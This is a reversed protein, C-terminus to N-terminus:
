KRWDMLFSNVSQLTSRSPNAEPFTTMIAGLKAKVLAKTFHEDGTPMRLRDQEDFFYCLLALSTGISLDRGSNCGIVIQNPSTEEVSSSLFVAVFKCIEELALRLNRAATKSKGLGVDMYTRSKIWSDKPTTDTTLAIVCENASSSCSIPLACVSVHKSLPKRATSSIDGITHQEVLQAILDPLDAEAAAILEDIHEWFVPATLGFAWNETDDAAGQIYGAEDVESGVVRRSATCCIVPRYDTFIGGDPPADDPEPLARADQTIWLPRLPKTLSDPLSPLNLARLSAVFSPLLVSIQAHTSDSFYPPLFLNASLPHEPLLVRNLVACWIPITTSLADPM